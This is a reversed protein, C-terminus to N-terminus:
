AFVPMWTEGVVGYAPIVVNVGNPLAIGSPFDSGGFFRAL